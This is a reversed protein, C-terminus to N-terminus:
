ASHVAETLEYEFYGAGYWPTRSVVKFRVGDPDIVIAGTPIDMVTWLTWWRWDRQGEPKVMLRQPRFPELVGDFPVPGSGADVVEFDVITPAQAELTLRVTLGNLAESVDPFSM